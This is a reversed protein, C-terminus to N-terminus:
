KTRKNAIFYQSLLYEIGLMVDGYMTRLARTESITLVYYVKEEYLELLDEISKNNITYHYGETSEIVTAIKMSISGHLQSLKEEHKLDGKIFLFRLLAFEILVFLILAIIILVSVVPSEMVLFNFTGTM